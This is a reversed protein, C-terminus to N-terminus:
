PRCKLLTNRIEPAYKDSLKKYKIWGEKNNYNIMAIHGSRRPAVVDLEHVIKFTKHLSEGKTCKTKVKRKVQGNQWLQHGHM